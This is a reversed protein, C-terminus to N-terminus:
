PGCYIRSLTGEVIALRGVLGFFNIIGSPM